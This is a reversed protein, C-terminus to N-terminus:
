DVRYYHQICSLVAREAMVADEGDIVDTIIRKADRLMREPPQGRRRAERCFQAAASEMEGIYERTRHSRLLARRFSSEADNPEPDRGMSEEGQRESM